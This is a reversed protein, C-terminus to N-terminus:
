REKHGLLVACRGTPVKEDELFHTQVSADEAAKKMIGGTEDKGICGIYAVNKTPLL